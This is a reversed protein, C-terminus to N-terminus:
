KSKKPLRDQPAKPLPIETKGEKMAKEAAERTSKPLSLLIAENLKDSFEDVDGVDVWRGVQKVTLTYNGDDDTFDHLLAAWLLVRLAKISGSDLAEMADDVSGYLEELEAYANLDLRLNRQVGAIEVPVNKNRVDSVKGM